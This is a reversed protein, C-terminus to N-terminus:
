YYINIILTNYLYIVEPRKRQFRLGLRQSNGM